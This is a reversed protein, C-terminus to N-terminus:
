GSEVLSVESVAALPVYAWGGNGDLRLTVLDIGVSRLEGTIIEHTEGFSLHVRVGDAALEALAHRLATAPHVRRDGSVIEAGPQSHVSRIARYTILSDIGTSTRMACFDEGVVRILGRHHRGDLLRVVVSQGQQVLDAVVGTVTAEELAQNALWRTRRRDDIDRETRLTGLWADFDSEKSGDM